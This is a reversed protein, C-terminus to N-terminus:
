TAVQAIKVQMMTAISAARQKALEAKEGTFLEDVTSNFLLLWQKFHHATLPTKNNLQIHLLMPNGNYVATYFLVSEWFNYMVPLHGPWDVKAVDNFIYGIIEDQRVKEYFRNILQEIDQRNEIDNKM